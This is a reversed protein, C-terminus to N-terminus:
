CRFASSEKRSATTEEREIRGVTGILLGGFRQRGEESVEDVEADRYDNELSLLDERRIGNTGVEGERSKERVSVL